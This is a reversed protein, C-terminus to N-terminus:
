NADGPAPPVPLPNEMIEITGFREEYRKVNTTLANLLAKASQPAMICRARCEAIEMPQSVQIFDFTFDVPSHATITNNVYHGKLIEPSYIVGMPKINPTQETM